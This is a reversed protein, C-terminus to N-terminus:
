FTSTEAKAIIADVQSKIISDLKRNVQVSLDEILEQIEVLKMQTAMQLSITNIGAPNALRHVEELRLNKVIAGNKSNVVQALFEGNSKNFKYIGKKYSNVM